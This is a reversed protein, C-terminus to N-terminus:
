NHLIMIPIETKSVFKETVSSHFISEVFSREKPVLMLVDINSKGIFDILGDQVTEGTTIRIEPQIDILEKQIFQSEALVEPYMKESSKSVYLVELEASLIGLVNRIKIFPLTSAVDKMDCALGIKEITKFASGKPIILLPFHLQKAAIRTFSGIFFAKATGTGTAGMVMAFPQESQQNMFDIDESFSVTKLDFSINVKNDCYLLLKQTAETLAETAEQVALEYNEFPVAVDSIAVPLALFHTLVLTANIERALDTAYRAANFAEESFDLPVIITKM